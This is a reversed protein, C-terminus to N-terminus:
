CSELTMLRVKGQFSTQMPKMGVCVADKKLHMPREEGVRILANPFM